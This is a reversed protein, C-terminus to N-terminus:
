IRILRYRRFQRRLRNEDKLRNFYAQADSDSDAVFGQVNSWAVDSGRKDRGEIMYHIM